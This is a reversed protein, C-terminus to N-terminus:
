FTVETTEDATVTANTNAEFTLDDDSDPEDQDADCTWAVTYEGATLYGVMFTYEGTADDLEVLASAVPATDSGEDDPTVDAGAYVYAAASCGETSAATQDVTGRIHGVETNDVLRLTPRLIYDQGSQGPKHVSKRVDFDITFNASDNAPVTFGQVLKLGTNGGSPIFLSHQGTSLDIYSDPSQQTATVMLRMWAYDGAPVTEDELLATSATGQLDLLDIQRPSDFDFTVREGDAPQIEIGDFQVVVSTAGDVPADTLGLSLTGSDDSSSGSGGGCATLGLAMATGLIGTFINTSRM